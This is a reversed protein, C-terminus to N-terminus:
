WLRRPSTCATSPTLREIPSPSIMPKAPSDPQPLDVRPLLKIKMSPRMFTVPPFTSSSPLGRGMESVRAIFWKRSRCTEMMGCYAM